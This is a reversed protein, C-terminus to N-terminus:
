AANRLEQTSQELTGTDVDVQATPPALGLQARTQATELVRLMAAGETQALQKNAVLTAIATRLAKFEDKPPTPANIKWCAVGKPFRVSAMGGLAAVAQPVDKLAATLQGRAISLRNNREKDDEKYTNYVRQFIPLIDDPNGSLLVRFTETVSAKHGATAQIGRFAADQLEAVTMEERKAKSM